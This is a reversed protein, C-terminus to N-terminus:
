SLTPDSMAFDTVRPPCYIMCALDHRPRFTCDGTLHQARESSYPWSWQVAIVNVQSMIGVWHSAVAYASVACLLAGVIGLSLSVSHLM